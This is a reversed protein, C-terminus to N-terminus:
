PKRSDSGHAGLAQDAGSRDLRVARQFLVAPVNETEPPASEWAARLARLEESTITEIMEIYVKWALSVLDPM